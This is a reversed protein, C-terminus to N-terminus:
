RRPDLLACGRGCCPISGLGGCGKVFGLQDSWALWVKGRNNAVRRRVRGGWVKDRDFAARRRVRSDNHFEGKGEAKRVAHGRKYSWSLSGPRPAVSACEIADHTWGCVNRAVVM